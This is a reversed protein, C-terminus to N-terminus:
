GGIEAAGDDAADESQDDLAQEGEESVECGEENSVEDDAPSCGFWNEVPEAPGGQAHVTGDEAVEGNEVMEDVTEEAKKHKEAEAQEEASEELVTQDLPELQTSEAGTDALAPAAASALAFLPIVITRAFM